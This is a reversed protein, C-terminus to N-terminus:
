FFIDLNYHEFTSELVRVKTKKRYQPKLREKGKEKIENRYTHPKTTKIWNM